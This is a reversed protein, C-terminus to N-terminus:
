RYHLERENVIAQAELRIVAASDLLYAGSFPQDIITARRRSLLYQLTYYRHLSRNGTVKLSQIWEQVLEPHTTAALEREMEECLAVTKLGFQQLQPLYRKELAEVEELSIANSIDEYFHPPRPQYNQSLGFPMEDTVTMATLWQILNSDKLMEQQWNLQEEMLQSVKDTGMLMNIADTAHHVQQNGNINYKWSWRAISWDFLWYGWEWGSSFTIHGPISYAICTDIDALRANLYPLLLMPISNDFTVWYASEPYYWTERLKHEEQMLDFMHTLNQNEYVPALTDTLSYFMVTHILVGREKDLADQTSDMVLNGKAMSENEDKVVHKRGM